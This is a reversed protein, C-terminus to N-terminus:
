DSESMLWQFANDRNRFAQLQYLASEMESFAVSMRALGFQLDEPAIVATKGGLRTAGLEAAKKIFKRLVHPTVHSVDALSMDWLALATPEQGVEGKLARYMEVESVPGSITHITLNKGEDRTTKISMIDPVEVAPTKMNPRFQVKVSKLM